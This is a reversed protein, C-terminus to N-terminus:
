IDISQLLKFSKFCIPCLNNKSRVFCEFCVNHNYNCTFSELESFCIVCEGIIKNYKKQEILMTFMNKIKEFSKPLLDIPTKNKNNKLDISAGNLVLMIMTEETSNTKSDRSALHLASCGHKEQLNVNAGADLLLKVTGETSITKSHKSALHLATWGDANQLNVNAGADILLKVTRETSDNKSYGSAFHLASWGFIDQLNVNAGADILLKVTGETSKTGSYISAYHLAPWEINDKLNVKAGADILLKVTGETSGSKSYKSAIHLATWGKNNQLNVNAGADILLKVTEETSTTKSYRSAYHLASWGANTTINISDHFESCVNFYNRLINNLNPYIATLIVCKHLLTFGLLDRKSIKKGCLNKMFKQTYRTSKNYDLLFDITNDDVNCVSEILKKVIKIAQKLYNYKEM